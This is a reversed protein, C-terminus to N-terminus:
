IPKYGLEQQSLIVINKHIQLLHTSFGPTPSGWDVHVEADSIQIVLLSASYNITLLSYWRTWSNMCAPRWINAILWVVKLNHKKFLPQTGLPRDPARLLKGKPSNIFSSLVSAPSITFPKFPTWPMARTMISLVLAEEGELKAANCKNITGRIWINLSCFLIPPFLATYIWRCTKPVLSRTTSIAMQMRCQTLSASANKNWNIM